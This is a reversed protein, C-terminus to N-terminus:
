SGLEEPTQQTGVQAVDGLFGLVPSRAPQKVDDKAFYDMLDTHLMMTDLYLQRTDVSHQLRDSLEAFESDSICNDVLLNVLLEDRDIPSEDHSNEIRIENTM